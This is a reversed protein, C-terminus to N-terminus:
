KKHVFSIALSLIWKRDHSNFGIFLILFINIVISCTFILVLRLITDGFSNYLVLPVVIGLLSILLEPGLVSKFYSKIPYDILRHIEFFTYIDICLRAIFIVIFPTIPSFGLKFLIYAAVFILFNAISYALQFGKIKGTANILHVLTGGLAQCLITILTLISFSVMYDTINGLWIHLLKNMEFCVPVVLIYFLFYSIKSSNNILKVTAEKDDKAYLKVIQPISAGQFNTVFSAVATQVQVAIGRAANVAPGFFMNLLINVGQDCLSNSLNGILSWSTYGMVDKFLAKDWYKKYHCEEFKKIDYIRNIMAFSLNCIFVLIAYVLLKDLPIYQLAIVSVLMLVSKGIQFIAYVNFEEHAFLSSNYPVQTVNIVATVISLQFVWFAVDMRDAPIVMKHYFLWLGVVECFLVIILSILIHVNLCMSFTNRLAVKDGKGLEFSLFRQTAETMATNLFTFLAVIGGVANYIGYDQVGLVQLIVRSTYFGVLITVGMRIYMYMSNKAIKKNDAAM